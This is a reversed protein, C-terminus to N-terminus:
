RLFELELRTKNNCKVYLVRIAETMFGWSKSEGARVTTPLTGLSNLRVECDSPGSNYINVQRWLGRGPVINESGNVEVTFTLVEGRAKLMEKLGDLTDRVARLEQLMKLTAALQPVDIPLREEDTPIPLTFRLIEKKSM